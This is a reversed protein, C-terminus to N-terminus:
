LYILQLIKFVAVHQMYYNISNQKKLTGGFKNETGTPLIEQQTVDWGVDKVLRINQYQIKLGTLDIIFWNKM